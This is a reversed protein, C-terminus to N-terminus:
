GYQNALASTTAVAVLGTRAAHRCRPGALRV